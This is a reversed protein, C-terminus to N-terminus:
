PTSLPVRRYDAPPLLHLGGPADVADYIRATEDDDAAGMTALLLGRVAATEEASLIRPASSTGAALMTLLLGRVRPMGERVPPQYYPLDLVAAGLREYFTLRRAPDGFRPHPTFVDPREVEAVVVRIGDWATWRANGAEVLATGTGSCRFTSAVALWDVLVASGHREGVIAGAIQEGERAVLVDLEGRMGAGLFDERTVLETEPFSAALVRDYTLGLLEPDASTGIM